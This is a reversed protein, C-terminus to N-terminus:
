RIRDGDKAMFCESLNMREDVIRIDRLSKDGKLVAIFYVYQNGAEGIREHTSSKLPIATARFYLFKLLILYSSLSECVEFLCLRCTSVTTAVIVFEFGFV